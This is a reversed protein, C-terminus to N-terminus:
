AARWPSVWQNAKAVRKEARIVGYGVERSGNSGRVKKGELTGIIRLEGDEVERGGKTGGMHLKEEVGGGRVWVCGYM